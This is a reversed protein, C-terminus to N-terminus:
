QLLRQSLRAAKDPALCTLIAGAEKGKLRRLLQVAIDEDMKELLKGAKDPPMAELTAALHRQHEGKIRKEEEIAELIRSQLAQLERLRQEVEQRVQRLQEERLAVAAERASLSQRERHLLSAVRLLAGPEAPSSEAPTAAESVRPGALLWGGPPSLWVGTLAIKALLGALLLSGMMGGAQHIDAEPTM